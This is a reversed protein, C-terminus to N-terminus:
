AKTPLTLHTYSVPEISDNRYIIDMIHREKSYCSIKGELGAPMYKGTIKGDEWKLDGLDVAGALPIFLILALALWKM